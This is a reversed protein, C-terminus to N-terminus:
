LGLSCNKEWEEYEKILYAVKESMQQALNNTETRDKSLDYLEWPQDKYKVLKWKGDRIMKGFKYDNGIKIRREQLPKGSFSPVLSVGELPKAKDGNFEIPFDQETLELITPMIDVLHAPQHYWTNKEEIGKPWHVIMPTCVGGEHSTKKFKALPCNSVYSWQLGIYLFTGPGGMREKGTPIYNHLYANGRAREAGNDSLFVILTNDLKGQNELESLVRGINQDVRDIAAAYVEMCKAEYAQEEPTLSNWDSIKEPYIPATKPDIVGLKIMRKYRENRIAEYGDDYKGKYKAIDEERAQVPSHPANFAMYLLFPKDEDKYEDLWELAYDAFVDTTYFNPGQPIYPNVWKDDVMWEHIGTNTFAVPTGDAMQKAPCFFNTQGGQFGMFRDFGRENPRIDNHNKGVMLTRYGAKKAMEGITPGLTLNKFENVRGEYRGSLLTSRSTNCKSTNYVQTYRIGNAALEDLNPTSIEGGYCAIDSYGLDDVMILLINPKEKKEAKLQSYGLFALIFILRFTNM